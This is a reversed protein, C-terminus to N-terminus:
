SEVVELLAEALEVHLQLLLARAHPRRSFRDLRRLLVPMASRLLPLEVLLPIFELAYGASIVVHLVAAFGPWSMLRAAKTSSSSSPLLALSDVWEVCLETLLIDCVQAEAAGIEEDDDDDDNEHIEDSAERVWLAVGRRVQGHLVVQGSIPRIVVCDSPFLRAGHQLLIQAIADREELRRDVPAGSIEAFYLCTFGENNTANFPNNEPDLGRLDGFVRSLHNRLTEMERSSGYRAAYHAPTDGAVTTASLSQAAPDLSILLEMLQPNRKTIARHLATEGAANCATVNAYEGEVVVRVGEEAECEVANLLVGAAFDRREATAVMHHQNLIIQLMTTSRQQISLTLPSIGQENELDIQAGRSVLLNAVLLSGEHISQHLPTKGDQDQVDIDAGVDLLLKAVDLADGNAAFHLAASGEQNRMNVDAGHRLLLRFIALVQDLLENEEDRCDVVANRRVAQGNQFVCRTVIVNHRLMAVMMPTLGGDDRTDPDQGAELVLEVIGLSGEWAATHLASAGLTTLHFNEWSCFRRASVTTDAVLRKLDLWRPHQARLHRMTEIDGCAGAALWAAHVQDMSLDDSPISLTERPDRM